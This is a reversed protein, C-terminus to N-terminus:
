VHNEIMLLSYLRILPVFLLLVFEQKGIFFLIVALFSAIVTVVNSSMGNIPKNSVLITNISKLEESYCKSHYPVIKIFKFTTILDYKNEIEKSCKNCIIKKEVIIVRKRKLRKYSIEFISVEM